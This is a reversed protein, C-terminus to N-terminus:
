QHFCWRYCIRNGDGVHVGNSGAACAETCAGPPVDGEGVRLSHWVDTGELAGDALEISMTGDLDQRIVSLTRGKGGLAFKGNITGTINDVDYMAKMMAGLNVDSVSENASVSPVDGSADVQVDGSYRGDYFEASLPHLRLKGGAGNVGLQLNSFKMGSLYAQQIRFNGNVNLTRILDAPIEVDGAEEDAAVASEDVPAMYGDLVISDVELDFKLAGSQTMPLSMTGTMTSDDLDLTMASLAIDNEGVAARASFSVSTMANEDATAPPEIDLAQMLEKLSFEAVRLEAVPQPTGAYSFPEVVAAMSMGMITLDFEGPDISQAETDVQLARSDFNFETPKNLLVECREPSM